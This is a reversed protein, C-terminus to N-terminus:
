LDNLDEDQFPYNTSLAAINPMSGPPEYAPEENSCSARETDQPTTTSSDGIQTAFLQVSMTM